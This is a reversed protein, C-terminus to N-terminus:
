IEYGYRTTSSKRSSYNRPTVRHRRCTAKGELLIKKRKHVGVPSTWMKWASLLSDPSHLLSREIHIKQQWFLMIHVKKGRRKIFHHSNPQLASRRSSVEVACVTKFSDVCTSIWNKFIVYKLSFM